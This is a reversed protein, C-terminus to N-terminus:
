KKKGGSGGQSHNAQYPNVQRVDEWKWLIYQLRPPGLAPLPSRRATLALDGGRATELGDRPEWQAKIKKGRSDAYTSSTKISQPMYTYIYTHIYTCPSSQRWQMRHLYCPPIHWPVAPFIYNMKKVNTKIDISTNHSKKMAALTEKEWFWERRQFKIWSKKAQSLLTELAARKEKIQMPNYVKVIKLLEDFWMWSSLDHQDM